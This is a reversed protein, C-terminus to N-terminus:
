GGRDHNSPDLAVGRKAFFAAEQLKTVVLARERGPPVVTEIATLVASFAGAIAETRQAGQDNLRIVKFEDRM